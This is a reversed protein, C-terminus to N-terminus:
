KKRTMLVTEVQPGNPRWTLDDLGKRGEQFGRGLLFAKDALETRLLPVHVPGSEPELVSTADVLASLAGGEEYDVASMIYIGRHGDYVGIKGLAQLARKPLRSYPAALEHNWVGALVIAEPREQENVAIWASQSYREIQKETLPPKDDIGNRRYDDDLLKDLSLRDLQSPRRIDYSM